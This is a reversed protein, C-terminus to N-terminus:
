EKFEDKVNNYVISSVGQISSSLVSFDTGKTMVCLLYPHKPYYVIGCDHLQRGLVQGTPTFDTREGFKHSVKIDNPVGAVIGNNFDSESLIKLAKESMQKSLYTGNYLLRFLYAYSKVTLFNTTGTLNGSPLKIGIDSLVDAMSNKDMRSYLLYTASNDSYEIMSKILYDITYSTGTVVAHPSKFYENKNTVMDSSISDSGAYFINNSLVNKDEDALKLYAIMLPVKFLSAPSYLENEHTSFWRGSNIDKYYASIITKDVSTDYKKSLNNIKEELPKYETFQKNDTTNCSLLPNIFKFESDNARSAFTIGTSSTSTSKHPFIFSGILLGIGLLGIGQVIHIKHKRLFKLVLLM